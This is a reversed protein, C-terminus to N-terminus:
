IAGQNLQKLRLHYAALFDTYNSGSDILDYLTGATTLLKQNGRLKDIAYYFNRATEHIPFDNGDYTFFADNM